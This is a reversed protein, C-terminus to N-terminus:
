TARALVILSVGLPLDLHRMLRREARLILGLSQNALATPHTLPTVPRKLLRTGVRVAGVAPLLLGNWYSARQVQWGTDHLLATLQSRRYRRHHGHEADHPSWLAPLAPVTLLLHGGTATRARLARLADRDPGVHELVDTCVILDYLQDGFPINDPLSGQALTGVGKTQALDLGTPDPEMAWLTGLESLMVLNGGTGCGAEFIARQRDPGLDTLWQRVLDRRGSFWWHTAEVDALNAVLDPRM